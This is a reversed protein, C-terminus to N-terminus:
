YINLNKQSYSMVIMRPHKESVIRGYSLQHNVGVCSQKNRLYAFLILVAFNHHRHFPGLLKLFDKEKGGV